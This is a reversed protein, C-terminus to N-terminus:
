FTGGDVALTSGTVYSADDSVLFAVAAAIEEPQAIRQLACYSKVLNEPSVDKLAPNAYREGDEKAMNTVTGGPAVANVIIGRAGLGAALNLVMASVAAKSTSYLTHYLIPQM